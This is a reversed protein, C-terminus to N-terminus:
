DNIIKLKGPCGTVLQRLYSAPESDSDSDTFDPAPIACGTCVPSENFNYLHCNGDHYTFSGCLWPRMGACAVACAEPAPRAVTTYSINVFTNTERKFKVAAGLEALLGAILTLGLVATPGAM